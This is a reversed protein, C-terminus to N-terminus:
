EWDSCYTYSENLSCYYSSGRNWIDIAGNQINEVRISVMENDCQTNNGLYCVIADSGSVKQYKISYATTVKNWTNTDLGFHETIRNANEESNGNTLCFEESTDNLCAYKGDIKGDKFILKIYVKSETPKSRVGYREANSLTYTFGSAKRYVYYIDIIGKEGTCKDSDCIVSYNDIIFLASNVEGNRITVTGRSPKKGSMEYDILTIDYEGNEYDNTKDTDLRNMSIQNNVARIVNRSTTEVAGKRSQEIVTNVAPIAILAIVGLILIVALLEILTFGKKKNKKKIKVIDGM